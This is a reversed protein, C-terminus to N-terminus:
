LSSDKEKQLKVEYGKSEWEKSREEAWSESESSSKLPEETHIVPWPTEVTCGKLKAKVARMPAEIEALISWHTGGETLTSYHIVASKKGSCTGAEVSAAGYLFKGGAQVRDPYLTPLLSAAAAEAGSNALENAVARAQDVGTHQAIDVLAAELLKQDDPSMDQGLGPAVANRMVGLLSTFPGGNSAATIAAGSLVPIAANKQKKAYLNAIGIYKEDFEKPPPSKVKGAVWDWLKSDGCAEYADGWQKFEVDRLAYAGQLFTVTKPHEGCTGGINGAVEDRADYDPIKSLATWAPSWVSGDIAVQVLATVADTDKAKELFNLFKSEAIKADCAMLSTYAPAVSEPALTAIATVQADCGAHAPSLFSVLAILM